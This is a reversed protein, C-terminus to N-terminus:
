QQMCRLYLEDFRSDPNDRVIGLFAVYETHVNSNCRKELGNKTRVEIEPHALKIIGSADGTCAEEFQPIRMGALFEKFNM